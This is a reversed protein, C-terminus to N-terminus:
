RIRNEPSGKAVYAQELVKIWREQEDVNFITGKKAYSFRHLGENGNILRTLEVQADQGACGPFSFKYIVSYKDDKLQEWQTGPCQGSRLDRFQQAYQTAQTMEGELFEISVLKTWHKISEGAPVWESITGKGEGRDKQFGLKWGPLEVDSVVAELPTSSCSALIMGISLTLAISFLKM